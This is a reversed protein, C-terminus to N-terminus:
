RFIESLISAARNQEASAAATQQRGADQLSAATPDDPSVTEAPITALQTRVISLQKFTASFRLVGARVKPMQLDIFACNEYLKFGTLLDFTTRSDRLQELAEFADQTRNDSSGLGFIAIPTNSVVGTLTVQKPDNIIHDNIISGGEVPNDTIQSTMSHNEEVTVDIEFAGIRNKNRKDKFFLSAM